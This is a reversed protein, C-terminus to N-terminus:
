STEARAFIADVSDDFMIALWGGVLVSALYTLRGDLLEADRVCLQKKCEIVV